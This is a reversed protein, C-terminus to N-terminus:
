HVANGIIDVVVMAHVAVAKAGAKRLLRIMEEALLAHGADYGDAAPDTLLGLFDIVTVVDGALVLLADVLSRERPSMQAAASQFEIVLVDIQTDHNANM